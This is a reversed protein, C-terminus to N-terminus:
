RYRARVFWGLLTIFKASKRVTPPSSESMTVVVELSLQRWQDSM